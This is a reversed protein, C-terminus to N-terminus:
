ALANEMISSVMVAEVTLDGERIRRAAVAFCKTRSSQIQLQQNYLVDPSPTTNVVASLPTGPPYDADAAQDLPYEYVAGYGVLCPTDVSENGGTAGEILVGIFLAKFETLADTNGPGSGSSTVTTHSAPYVYDDSELACLDGNEAKTGAKITGSAVKQPGSRYRQNQSM